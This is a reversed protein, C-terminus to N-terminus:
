LKKIKILKKLLFKQLENVDKICIWWINNKLCYDRWKEQMVSMVGNEKKVEIELHYGNIIAYLDAIGKKYNFGGAQRREFYVPYGLSQLKKFYKIVDNQVKKELLM